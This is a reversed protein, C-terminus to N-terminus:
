DIISRIDYADCEYIECNLKLYQLENYLDESLESGTGTQSGYLIQILM